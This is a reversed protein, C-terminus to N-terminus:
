DFTAISLIIVSMAALRGAVDIVVEDCHHNWVVL